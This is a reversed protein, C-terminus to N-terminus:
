AASAACYDGQLKPGCVPGLAVQAAGSSGSDFEFGELSRVGLRLQTAADKAFEGARDFLGMSIPVARRLKLVWDGTVDRASPRRAM